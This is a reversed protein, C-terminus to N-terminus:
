LKKYVLYKFKVNNLMHKHKLQQSYECYKLNESVNESVNNQLLFVLTCVSLQNTEISAIQNKIKKNKEIM